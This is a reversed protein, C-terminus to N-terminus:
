ETTTKDQNEQEEESTSCMGQYIWETTTKDQAPCAHIHAM